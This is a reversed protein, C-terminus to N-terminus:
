HVTLQDGPAAPEPRLHAQQNVRAEVLARARSDTRVADDLSDCPSRSVQQRLAWAVLDAIDTFRIRNNLFAAVAAENAANLVAPASGGAELAQRALALCPFRETDPQEFEMTGIRAFDPEAVGSNLREPWGLVAAIPVRIDPNACHAIVSGDRYHLLSHLLSQPQILVRLASSPLGFLVSAEVLELGKNMMTASDVSIKAGMTWNPHKIAQEPKVDAFQESPLRLFPGGSATLTLAEVQKLPIGPQFNGGVCQFVANHESDLPIIEAGHQRVEALLHAGTVVLAEKNALLIRAGTRVAALLSPLGAIGTVAAVVTHLREKHPRPAAALLHEAAGEGGDVATELGERRLAQRLHEAAAANELAAAAPRLRRCLELMTRWDSRATLLRVTFRGPNRQLVDAVSRGITGTAGLVSVANM